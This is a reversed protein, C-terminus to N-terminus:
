DKGLEFRAFRGIKINEGLKAIAEMVLDQITKSNDRIYPQLLLCDSQPAVDEADQPIDEKSVFRAPMAAVQMALNHALEKFDDTRAVFDSECNVEVLAGIRNNCHIYSEILGDKAVREVKKQARLLGDQKLVDLARDIDGETTALAKRCDMVGAGTKDRLEKVKAAPINM